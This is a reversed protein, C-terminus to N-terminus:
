RRCQVESLAGIRSSPGFRRLFPLVPQYIRAWGAFGMMTLVLLTRYRRAASFPAIPTSWGAPVGGNTSAVANPRFRHCPFVGGGIRQTGSDRSRTPGVLNAVESFTCDSRPFTRNRPLFLRGPLRRM